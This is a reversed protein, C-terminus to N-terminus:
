SNSSKSKTLKVMYQKQILEGYNSLIMLRSSSCTHRGRDSQLVCIVSLTVLFYTSANSKGKNTPSYPTGICSAWRPVLKTPQWPSTWQSQYCPHRTRHCITYQDMKYLYLSITKCITM